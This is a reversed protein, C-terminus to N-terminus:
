EDTSNDSAKTSNLLATIKAEDLFQSNYHFRIEPTHRVNLLNALKSRLAGTTRGIAKSYEGLNETDYSDWHAVAVSFDKNLDVSTVTIMKLCPDDFDSRILSNLAFLIKEQYKEKSFKKGRGNSSM